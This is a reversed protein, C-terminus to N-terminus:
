GGENEAHVTNGPEGAPGEPAKDLELWDRFPLRYIMDMVEYEIANPRPSSSNWLVVVGARLRPDFLIMSRYGRVGGHHGIVRHGAYDLIRWGLGYASAATRERFKRRRFNEGPTRVQPTQVAALVAPPLVDAALGMQALMWISLDKITGNVGGAAPVRYYTDTVEEPGRPHGGVHPRAWSRAGVLGARSVSAGTMGLPAFFRERVVDGYPRGTVREVIESAADFAVNQYAHCAGPPCINHLTALTGRLYHPEMGDELKADQAHGFLGLSHSLLNAVSAVQENGGPLRLSPAWRGVPDNLSLRGDNALSAVMDAAVGKSLSAWRFVSDATVPESGGAFTVGYGKIFRIRGDEVIGVALGVMAPDAMLRNLRADLGVYDVAHPPAEGGSSVAVDFRHPPDAPLPRTVRLALAWLAAAALLGAVFYWAFRRSRVFDFM